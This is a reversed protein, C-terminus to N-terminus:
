FHAEQHRCNQLAALEFRILTRNSRGSDRALYPSVAAYLCLRQLVAAEPRSWLNRARAFWVWGIPRGGKRRRRRCVVEEVQYWVVLGLGRRPLRGLGVWKEFHGAAVLALLRALLVQLLLRRLYAVM